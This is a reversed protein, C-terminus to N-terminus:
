ARGEEARGQIGKNFNQEAVYLDSALKNTRIAEGKAKEKNETAM